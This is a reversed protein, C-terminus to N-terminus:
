APRYGGCPEPDRRRCGAIGLQPKIGRAAPAAPHTLALRAFTAFVRCAAARLTRAAGRAGIRDFGREGTERVFDARREVANQRQAFQDRRGVQGLAFAFPRALDLARGLMERM